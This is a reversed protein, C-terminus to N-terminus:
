GDASRGDEPLHERIEWALRGLLRAYILLGAAFQPGLLLGTVIWYRPDYRCLVEAFHIQMGFLVLLTVSAPLFAGMTRNGFESSRCRLCKWVQRTLPQLCCSAQQTSLLVIPLLGHFVSLTTGFALAEELDHKVPIEAIAILWVAAAHACKGALCAVAGTLAVAYSLQGLQGLWDTWDADPWSEIRDAGAATTEFIWVFLASGYAAAWLLLITAPLVIPMLAMLPGLRTFFGAFSYARWFLAATVILAAPTLGASLLLWRSLVGRTLPFRFVTLYFEGLPRPPRPVPPPPLGGHFLPAPVIVDDPPEAVPYDDRETTPPELADSSVSMM